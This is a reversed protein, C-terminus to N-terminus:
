EEPENLYAWGLVDKLEPNAVKVDRPFPLYEQKNTEFNNYHAVTYTNYLRHKPENPVGDTIPFYADHVTPIREHIGSKNFVNDLNVKGLKSWRVLDHFRCSEFWMEYQKEEMVADLTLSSSIKGSGSRRQIDNLAKLGKAEDGSGICAEAYLLMAEALRAVNYNSQNSNSGLSPVYDSPYSKGGTLIRPPNHYVMRKWEFYQGHSYIGTAVKIGRMPDVEKEARTGDNVSSGSWDMEYLFEEGTIFCARRRPSDGDHEVFRKAFDEQVAGGNWGGGSSPILECVTPVSAMRDTRWCLTNAMMWRGRMMQGRGHSSDEIFNPDFIKEPNGDGARHFNTWFEDGPILQYNGSEILAGLYKRATAMDNNFVAAKGAVFQAFGVTMIATGDKDNPGNRKPLVGSSLAKECEAIVWDLVQKQDAAQTPLEDGDLLRDVINPAYWTLAMMMHCYARLVRAEEVAQKSLASTYKPETGNRNETSFNSIVLNCHYIATNYNNYMTKIVGASHDYRFEDFIRFDGHDELDGGAALIDDASYNLVMFEANYIGSCAAVSGLFNAYMDNRAAEVDAETEYFTDQAIVGKQPIDLRSECSVAIFAFGLLIPFLIKKM